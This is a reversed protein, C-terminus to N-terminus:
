YAREEPRSWIILLRLHGVRVAQVLELFRPHAVGVSQTVAEILQSLICTSVVIEFPGPLKGTVSQVPREASAAIEADGITATPSWQAMAGLSATLDVEHLRLATTNIFGQRTVGEGLAYKDLDVLHIQDYATLLSALDLDNCNGAGLICIRARDLTSKKHLLAMVKKRHDAFADWYNRSVRNNELQSEVLSNM